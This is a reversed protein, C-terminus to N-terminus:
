ITLFKYIRIHLELVEQLEGSLTTTVLGRDVLNSIQSIVEDDRQEPNM